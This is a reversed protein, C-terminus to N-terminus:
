SQEIKSKEVDIILSDFIIDKLPMPELEIESLASILHILGTALANYKTNNLSFVSNTKETLFPVIIRENSSNGLLYSPLVITKDGAIILDPATGDKPIKQQKLMELTDKGNLEKRKYTTKRSIIATYMPNLQDPYHPPAEVKFGCGASFHDTIKSLPRIPRKLSRIDKIQKLAKKLSRSRKNDVNVEDEFELNHKAEIYAYVAEIPVYEKQAFNNEKLMRLTPFRLRDYIIIDDGFIDNNSTVIYGRCVGFKDPLIEKLINCLAIEFEPGLEYNHNASIENLHSEIRNSIKSIYGQYM